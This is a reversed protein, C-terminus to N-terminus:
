SRGMRCGSDENDTNGIMRRTNEMGDDIRGKNENNGMNQDVAISVNDGRGTTVGVNV